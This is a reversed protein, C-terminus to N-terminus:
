RPCSGMDSAKFSPTERPTAGRERPTKKSPQENYAQATSSPKEMFAHTRESENNKIAMM